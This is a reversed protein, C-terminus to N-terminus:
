FNIKKKFFILFRDFKQLIFDTVMKVKADYTAAEQLQVLFSGAEAGWFVTADLGTNVTQRMDIGLLRYTGTPYFVVKIMLHDKGFLLGATKYKPGTLSVPPVPIERRSHTIIRVPDNLYFYLNQETNALCTIFPAPLDQEEHWNAHYVQFERILSDLVAPPQYTKFFPM